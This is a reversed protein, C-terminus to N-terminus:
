ARKVESFASQFQGERCVKVVIGRSAALAQMSQENLSLKEDKKKVLFIVVSPNNKAYHQLAYITEKALTSTVMLMTASQQYNIGAGELIKALSSPSDDQVKALHYFLQQMQEQGDRIPSSYYNEGFSLLGTQAGKKLVARIVSATFTVLDDFAPAPTRDLLVLVDHSQREEFEKTKLTNTRAFSKWHIWSFRDGSQYERIGTAMTTDKQIKINSSALGQDFQNELPRYIVEVYSPYVLVEEDLLILREKTFLGFIDGTGIRIGSFVHEGRPLQDVTYELQIERQFGPYVISKAVDYPSYRFITPTVLDEVLLYFLPFPFRRRITITITLSDGAKLAKTKLNREVEMEALPYFFLLLAYFSFPLFSYFLFWSVFGGQFMAYSFTVGLLLLLLLIKGVVKVWQLKQRM